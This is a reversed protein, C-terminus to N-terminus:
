PQVEVGLPLSVADGHEWWWHWARDDERVECLRADRTAAFQATINRHGRTLAVWGVRRLENVIADPLTRRIM